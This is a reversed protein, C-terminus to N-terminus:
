GFTLIQPARAALTILSLPRLHLCWVRLAALHDFQIIRTGLAPVVVEAPTFISQKNDAQCCGSPGCDGRNVEISRMLDDCALAPYQHAPMWGAVVLAADL